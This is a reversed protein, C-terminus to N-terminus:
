LLAFGLENSPLCFHLTIFHATLGLIYVRM